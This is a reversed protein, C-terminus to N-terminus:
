RIALDPMACGRTTFEIQSKDTSIDDSENTSKLSFEQIISSTNQIRTIEIPTNISFRRIILDLAERLYATTTYMRIKILHHNVKLISDEYCTKKM